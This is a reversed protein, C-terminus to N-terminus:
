RRCSPRLSTRRASSWARSRRRRPAGAARRLCLRRHDPPQLRQVEPGRLRLGLHDVGAVAQDLDADDDVIIANKGGMEAIVRKVNRQGPRVEAASRVISLGVEKSGTFAIMSSTLTTSWRRASRRARARAPVARGGAARGGRAPGRGAARRDPAVARGAQPHRLQGAALAASSM